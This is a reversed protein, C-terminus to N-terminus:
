RKQGSQRGWRCLSTSTYVLLLFAFACRRWAVWEGVFHSKQRYCHLHLCSHYLTVYCCTSRHGFGRPRHYKTSSLNSNKRFVFCYWFTIAQEKACSWCRRFIENFDRQLKELYKTWLLRLSLRRSNCLSRPPPLFCRLIRYIEFISCLDLM